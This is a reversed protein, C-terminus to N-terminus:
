HLHALRETPRNPFSDSLKVLVRRMVSNRMKFQKTYVTPHM